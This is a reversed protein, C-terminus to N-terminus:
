VFIKEFQLDFDTKKEFFIIKKNPM